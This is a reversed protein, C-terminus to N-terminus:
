GQLDVSTQDQRERKEWLVFFQYSMLEQIRLKPVTNGQAAAMNAYLRKKAETQSTRVFQKESVRVVKPGPRL